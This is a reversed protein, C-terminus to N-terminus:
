PAWSSGTRWVSPGRRQAGLQSSVILPDLGTQIVNVISLLMIQWVLTMRLHSDASSPGPERESPRLHWYTWACSRPLAVAFGQIACLVVLGGGASVAIFTLPLAILPGSGFLIAAVM